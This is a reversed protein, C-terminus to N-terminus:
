GELHTIIGFHDSPHIKDKMETGVLHTEKPHGLGNKGPSGVFIYDIRRDPELTKKAYINQNSWTHGSNIPNNIQWVDKLVTRNIPSKLGLVLRIEESMPDANFDGCLINPFSSSDLHSIYELIFKVQDQRIDSQNYKYNLHTCLVNIKHEEYLLQTHLLTRNENFKNETPILQSNFKIIPYKSVIANGFSVGDFEYSKFFKYNYGLLDSIMKAQSRDQDEWVEQLCLIDPRLKKIENFILDQRKIYNEFKWWINWSLVKIIKKHSLEGYADLDPYFKKPM